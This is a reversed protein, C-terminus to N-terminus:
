IGFRGRLANFNQQIEQATLVRNYHLHFYFNGIMYEDTGGADYGLNLVTNNSSNWGTRTVSGASVGNIYHTLTNNVADMTIACIFPTNASITGITYNALNLENYYSFIANSQKGVYLQGGSGGRYSLICRQGGSVVPLMVAFFITSDSCKVTTNGTMNVSVFDNVGDLVIGGINLSNYTSGNTLTGNRGNGSLDFWKSGANNLLDAISPEKGDCVDVRPQYMQQNTTIVTSYYLYCRQFSTTNTPAWMYDTVSAVKTGSTNYIGSDVHVPGSGSGAAWVHGVLLFWENASGWWNQAIFYPNINEASNSRNLIYKGPVEGWNSHPGLYSSGNGVTKRRMWVSFRYTKTPDISFESTNWGGDDDSSADQNSIDWVVDQINFPNSDIIRTNIGLEGNRFYSPWTGTSSIDDAADTYWDKWSLVNRSFGKVAKHNGADLCLVLGNTAIKPNYNIAM